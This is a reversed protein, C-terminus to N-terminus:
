RRLRSVLTALNAEPDAPPESSWLAHHIRDAPVLTGPEVALMALLARSKRSGLEAGALRKEGRTVALLGCLDIRIREAM